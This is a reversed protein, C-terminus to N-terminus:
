GGSESILLPLPTLELLPREVGVAEFIQRALSLRRNELGLLVPRLEPDDVAASARRFGDL